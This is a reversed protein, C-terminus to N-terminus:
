VDQGSTHGVSGIAIECAMSASPASPSFDLRDEDSEIRLAVRLGLKGIIGGAEEMGAQDPQGSCGFLDARHRQRVLGIVGLDFVLAARVVADIVGADDIQDAAVAIEAKEAAAM